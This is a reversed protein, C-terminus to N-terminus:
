LRLTVSHNPPQNSILQQSVLQPNSERARREGEYAKRLGNRHLTKRFAKQHVGGITDIVVQTATRALQRCTQRRSRNPM